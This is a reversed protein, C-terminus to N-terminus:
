MGRVSRALSGDGTRKHASISFSLRIPTSRPPTNLRPDQHGIILGAIVVALMGSVHAVTGLAYAAFPTALSIANISLPDGFMRRSGLVLGAVAAGIVAGGVADLAFQGAALAFSFGGGVAATVAVDYLTLATADNLLGEGEILTALRAPLGARRGVSLAAVPDTPAVAAGLAVAAALPVVPVLWAVMAGVALATAAVLAVSLSVVPRLLSRIALLSSSLAASYLLPPLVVDLIVAPRLSLNPGPLLAYGIGVVTLLVADPM